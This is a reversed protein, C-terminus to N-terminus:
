TGNCTDSASLTAFQANMKQADLGNQLQFDSSNSGSDRVSLLQFDNLPTPAAEVPVILALSAALALSIFVSPFM